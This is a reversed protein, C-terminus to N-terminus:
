SQSDPLIVKDIVHIVGNSCEIDTMVVSADNVMVGDDNKKIKVDQGNLMTAKNMEVVQKSSVKGKVIHYTLISTLKEKDKLLAELTGKPLAEFAKNTPAFVTYPGEGSLAEQLDAAKVAKVLISFDENGAATEVINMKKMEKAKEMSAKTKEAKSHDDGVGCAGCHASASAVGFVM